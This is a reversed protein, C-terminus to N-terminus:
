MGPWAIVPGGAFPQGAANVRSVCELKYQLALLIVIPYSHLHTGSSLVGIFDPSCRLHLFPLFITRTYIIYMTNM